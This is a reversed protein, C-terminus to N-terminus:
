VILPNLNFHHFNINLHGYIDKFIIHSFLFVFDVLVFVM